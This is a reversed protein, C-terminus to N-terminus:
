GSKAQLGRVRGGVISDDGGTLVHELTKLIENETFPKLIYDKAGAHMAEMVLNEQGMASVMIIKADTDTQLIRRAAEIGSMSPMVVDMTVIAPRLKSYMEVAQVGDSAEGVVDFHGKKLIERLHKRVFSVDDCILVTRDM